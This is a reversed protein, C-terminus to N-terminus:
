LMHAEETLNSICGSLVSTPSPKTKTKQREKKKSLVVAFTTVQSTKKSCETKSLKIERKKGKWPFFYHIKGCSDTMQYIDKYINM